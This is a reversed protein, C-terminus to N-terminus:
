TFHLVHNNYVDLSSSATKHAIGVRHSQSKIYYHQSQIQQNSFHLLRTIMFTYDFSAKTNYLCLFGFWLVLDFLM